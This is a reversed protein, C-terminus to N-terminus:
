GRDLLHQLETLATHCDRQPRFGHSHASFQPEYYAELLM